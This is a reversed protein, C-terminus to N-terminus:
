TNTYLMSKLYTSTSKRSIDHLCTYLIHVDLACHSLSHINSFYKAHVCKTITKATLSSVPITNLNGNVCSHTHTYVYLFDEKYRNYHRLICHLHQPIWAFMAVHLKRKYTTQLHVYAM